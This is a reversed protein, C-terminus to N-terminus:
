GPAYSEPRVGCQKVLWTHAHQTKTQLSKLRVGCQTVAHTHTTNRDAFKQNECWMAEGCTHAHQTKIQLSKTRVGCQKVLWVHANHLYGEGTHLAVLHKGEQAQVGKNRIM